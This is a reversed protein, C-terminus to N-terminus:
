KFICFLFICHSLSKAIIKNSSKYLGVTYNLVFNKANIVPKHMLNVLICNFEWKM